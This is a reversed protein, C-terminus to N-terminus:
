GSTMYPIYRIRDYFDQKANNADMRLQAISKSTAYEASQIKRDVGVQNNIAKITAEISAYLAYSLVADFDKSPITSLTHSGYYDFELTTEGSPPPAIGMIPIDSEYFTYTVDLSSQSGPAGTPNDYPDGILAYGLPSTIGYNSSGGFGFNTLQKAFMRADDYISLSAKHTNKVGVALDFSEQDVRIFDLPLAYMDM